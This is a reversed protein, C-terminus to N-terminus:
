LQNLLLALKTPFPCLIFTLSVELELKLVATLVTKVIPPTVSVKETVVLAILPALVGVLKVSVCVVFVLAVECVTVAVPLPPDPVICTEFSPLM